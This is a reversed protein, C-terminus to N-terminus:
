RRRINPNNDMSSYVAEIYVELDAVRFKDGKVSPIRSASIIKSNDVTCKISSDDYLCGEIDLLMDNLASNIAFNPTDETDNDIACKCLLRFRMTYETCKNGLSEPLIEPQQYINISPYDGRDMIVSEDEVNVVTVTNYYTYGGALTTSSDITLLREKLAREIDTIPNSM